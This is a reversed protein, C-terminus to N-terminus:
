TCSYLIMVLCLSDQLTKSTASKLDLSLAVAEAVCTAVAMVLFLSARPLAPPKISSWMVMHVSLDSFFIKITHKSHIM